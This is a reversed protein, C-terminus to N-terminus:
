TTTFPWLGATVNRDDPVTDLPPLEVIFGSSAIFWAAATGQAVYCGNNIAWIKRVSASPALVQIPNVGANTTGSDGEIDDWPAWWVSRDDCLTFAAAGNIVADSANSATNFHRYINLLINVFDTRYASGTFVRPTCLWGSPGVLMGQAISWPPITALDQPILALQAGSRALRAAMTPYSPNPRQYTCEWGASVPTLNGTTYGTGYPQPVTARLNLDADYMQVTNGTGIRALSNAGQRLSVNGPQGPTATTEGTDINISRWQGSSKRFIPLGIGPPPLEVMYLQPTIDAAIDVETCNNFGRGFMPRPGAAVSAMAVPPTATGIASPGLVMIAQRDQQLDFYPPDTEPIRYRWYLSRAGVIPPTADTLIADGTNCLNPKILMSLMPRSGRADTNITFTASIQLLAPEDAINEIERLLEFNVRKWSWGQDEFYDGSTAGFVGCPGAGAEGDPYTPLTPLNSTTRYDYPPPDPDPVSTPTSTYHTESSIGCATWYEPNFFGQKLEDLRRARFGPIAYPSIRKAWKKILAEVAAALAASNESPTSGGQPLRAGRRTRAVSGADPGTGTTSILDDYLEVLEPPVDQDTIRM